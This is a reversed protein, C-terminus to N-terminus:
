NLNKKVRKILADLKVLMEQNETLRNQYNTIHGFSIIQEKKIDQIVLEITSINSLLDTRVSEVREALLTREKILDLKVNDVQKALRNSNEKSAFHGIFWATFGGILGLVSFVIMTWEFPSM